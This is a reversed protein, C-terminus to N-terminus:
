LRKDSVSVKSDEALNLLLYVSVRLTQEQKSVFNQFKKELIDFEMRERELDTSDRSNKMSELMKTKKVLDTSWQNYRTMEYQCIDMVQSGVKYHYIM